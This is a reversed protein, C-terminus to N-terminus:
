TLRSGPERQGHRGYSVIERLPKRGGQLSASRQPASDDVYGLGVASFAYRDSPIGLIQRVKEQPEDGSFWATGSGLGLHRAALMIRESVRGEDYAESRSSKSDLV